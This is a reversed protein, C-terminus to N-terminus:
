FLGDTPDFGNNLEESKKMAQLRKITDPGVAVEKVIEEGHSIILEGTFPHINEYTVPRTKITVKNQPTKKPVVEGTIQDRFM